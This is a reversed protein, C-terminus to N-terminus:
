VFSLECNADLTPIYCPNPRRITLLDEFDGFEIPPLEGAYPGIASIILKVPKM